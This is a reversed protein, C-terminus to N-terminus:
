CDSPPSTAQGSAASRQASASSETLRGDRRLWEQVRRMGEELSTSPTFGLERAAKDGRYTARRMVARAQAGTFVPPRGTLRAGLEALVAITLATWGPVGPIRNRGLMAAYHGFFERITVPRPGCIIYAEGSRGRLLAALIGDVADDVYIPQILGKGWDPLIMTRAEIMKLPRLTWTEDGPGYLETPQVIVAPLGKAEALGRIVEEGELKTQSYPDHSRPRPSREDTGPGARPGYVWASSAHLFRAVDAELAAEAMLRAGEVNVAHFHSWPRFEDGLVGALHVVAQCGSVARRLSAPDTVDGRVVEAGAAALSGAKAVDRAMARVSAGDRLLRSSVNRGILGTAGTVLIRQGRTEYTM